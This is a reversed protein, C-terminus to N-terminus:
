LEEMTGYSGVEETYNESEPLAIYDDSTLKSEEGPTNATADGDALAAEALAAEALVTPDDLIGRQALHKIAKLVTLDEKERDNARFRDALSVRGAGAIEALAADRTAQDHVFRCKNKKGCILGQAFYKCQQRIVPRVPPPVKTPLHSKSSKTEPEDDSDLDSSDSSDDSSSAQTAANDTAQGIVQDVGDEEHKVDADENGIDGVSRKRKDGAKIAEQLKREAKELQKRLKEAKRQQRELKTEGTIKETQSSTADPVANAGSINDPHKALREEREKDRRLEDRKAKDRLSQQRSAERREALRKTLEAEKAEIRAKTPWRSRREALWAQLDSPERYQTLLVM